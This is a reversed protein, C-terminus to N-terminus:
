WGEYIKQGVKHLFKRRYDNNEYLVQRINEILQSRIAPIRKVLPTWLTQKKIEHLNEANKGIAIGPNEAEIIVQSRQPDFIINTQGTEPPLVKKIVERTKEEDLTLLPDARLEIRKKVTNVAERIAGHNDLVFSPDECYLVINSGEFCAEKIKASEPLCSLVVDLIKAM